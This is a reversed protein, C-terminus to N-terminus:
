ILFFFSPHNMQLMKTFINVYRTHKCIGPRQLSKEPCLNAYKTSCIHSQRGLFFFSQSVREGMCFPLLEWATLAENPTFGMFDQFDFMKWLLLVLVTEM